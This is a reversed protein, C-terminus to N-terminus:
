RLIVMPDANKCQANTSDHITYPYHKKSTGQVTRAPGPVPITFSGVPTGTAPDFIVQYTHGADAFWTLSDDNDVYVQKEGNGVDCKHLGITSIHVPVDQHVPRLILWAIVGLVLVVPTVIKWSLRM